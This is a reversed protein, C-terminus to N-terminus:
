KEGNRLLYVSYLAMGMTRAREQAAADDYETSM